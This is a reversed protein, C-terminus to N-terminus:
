TERDLLGLVRHAIATDQVGTGTLDAVTVAAEDNRGPATGAAVAGFEVIRQRWGAPACILAHRLEGVRECQALRDCAVANAAHLVESALEQKYDADAGVATIHLGPHLWASEVLPKRSPTTTIVVGSARVVEEPSAAALVPVGLLISLDTACRAAKAPDRAWVLARAFPRVLYLARLQLRAQVGAGLVGATEVKRPAFHRAAV